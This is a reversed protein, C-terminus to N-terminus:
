RDIEDTKSRASGMMNNVMKVADLSGGASVNESSVRARASGKKKTKIITTKM